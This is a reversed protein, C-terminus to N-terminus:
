TSFLFLSNFGRHIQMFAVSYYSFCSQILDSLQALSIKECILRQEWHKKYNRLVYKVNNEDINEFHNCIDNVDSSAARDLIIKHQCVVPIQSYPVISSLLLAHTSGCESCIVRCIKLRICGDSNKVTREYSAHFSLCASRGCSCTLQHLQIGYVVKDYYTQSIDNYNDDFLTIM